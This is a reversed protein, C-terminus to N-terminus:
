LQTVIKNLKLHGAFHNLYVYVCILEREFKKEWKTIVSYQHTERHMCYTRTLKHKIYLLKHISTVFELKDGRM